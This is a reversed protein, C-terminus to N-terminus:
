MDPFRSLVNKQHASRNEGAMPVVCIAHTKQFITYDILSYMNVAALSNAQGDPRRNARERM